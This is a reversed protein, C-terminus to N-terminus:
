SEPFEDHKRQVRVNFSEKKIEKLFGSHLLQKTPKGLVKVKIIIIILLPWLERLLPYPNALM